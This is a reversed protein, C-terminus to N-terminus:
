EDFDPKAAEVVAAAPQWNAVLDAITDSLQIVKATVELDLEKPSGSAKMVPLLLDTLGQLKQKEEDNLGATLSTAGKNISALRSLLQRRELKPGEEDRSYSRRRGSPNNGLILDEFEQAKEAGEAVVAQTLMGLPVLTVAVDAEGPFTMKGLLGAVCCRDELSMNDDAIMQTLAGHVEKSPGTKFQQVLVRAAQCKMWNNVDADVDVDSPKQALMALSAQTVRDAYQADIGFRAHRELGELAGVKVSPHVKVGKFENTELLELLGNTAESLVIPKAKVRGGAYQQDLLGLILVANYRVAPHYNGRSLM